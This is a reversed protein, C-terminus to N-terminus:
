QRSSRELLASYDIGHQFNEVEIIPMQLQTAQTACKHPDSDEAFKWSDQPTSLFKPPQLWLKPIDSLTLGQTGHDAAKHAM